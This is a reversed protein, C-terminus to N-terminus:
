KSRIKYGQWDGSENRNLFHSGDVVSEEILKLLNGSLPYEIDDFVWDPSNPNSTSVHCQRVSLDLMVECPLDSITEFDPNIEKKLKVLPSGDVIVTEISELIYGHAQAIEKAHDQKRLKNSLDQNIEKTEKDVKTAKIFIYIVVIIGIIYYIYEVLFLRELKTLLLRVDYKSYM